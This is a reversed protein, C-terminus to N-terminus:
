DGVAVGSVGEEEEEEEGEAEQKVCREKLFAEYHKRVEAAAKRKMIHNAKNLVINSFELYSIKHKLSKLV